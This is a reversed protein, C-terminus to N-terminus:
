EPRSLRAAYTELATWFAADDVENSARRLEAAPTRSELYGTFRSALALERARAGRRSRRNAARAVAFAAAVTAILTLASLVVLPSFTALPMIRPKPVSGLISSRPLGIARRSNYSGGRPGRRSRIAADARLGRGPWIGGLASRSETQGSGRREFAGPPSRLRTRGTRYLNSVVQ